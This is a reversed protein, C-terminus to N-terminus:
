EKVAMLELKLQSFEPPVYFSISRSKRIAEWHDGAREIQFYSRGPQVPIEAPPTPLHRLTLGRLAAAVLQDVRDSSSAKAKLPIERIVKEEPVAAMVALYFQATELLRDDSVRGAYFSERTRELTIPMCRTPIVTEMLSRIREELKAFTAGLAEHDYRPLEKPHGESAFTYLEGALQALILYAREPHISPQACLHALPPVYGNMTHLFWFNAAESMTFEVLGRSRQRRQKALEDSKSSVIEFIRRVIAALQTTASLTLSPPVYKEDLAFKGSGTRVAEGIKLTVYDDLPEGEFLLRLNKAALAIERETAAGAEDGVTAGRRRYRTARGDSTGDPSVSSQGPKPRPAGLYISLSTRKADFLPEIARSPPAEDLDPVDVALGDPLLGTVRTLVVEGNALADANLQVQAVGWSLPQLARLSRWLLNEHYRDSQQLHQPTLFM